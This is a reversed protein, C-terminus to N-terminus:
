FLWFLADFQFKAHSYAMMYTSLVWDQNEALVLAKFGKAM